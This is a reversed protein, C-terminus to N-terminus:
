LESWRTDRRAVPRDLRITPQPFGAPLAPPLPTPLGVTGVDEGAPRATRATEGRPQADVILDPRRRVAVYERELALRLDEPGRIVVPGHDGIADVIAVLYSADDHGRAVVEAVSRHGDPKTTVVVAREHDISVVASREVPRAEELTTQSTM